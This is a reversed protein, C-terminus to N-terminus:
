KYSEHDLLKQLIAPCSRNAKLGQHLEHSSILLKVSRFEISQGRVDAFSILERELLHEFARLCVNRAYYDSTHYNDHIAKYEKMLTNFNYSNQEKVELRNMCVLLYLELISADLLSELKPQRQIHFIATKFNELSLFGSKVDICSVVQFLFKLLHSM